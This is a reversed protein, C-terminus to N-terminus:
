RLATVDKDTSQLSQSRQRSLTDRVFGIHGRIGYFLDGFSAPVNIKSVMSEIHDLHKLLEARRSPDAAPNLADRELDLLARYWRHIRSEIRWRYIAPAMKLAPILLLAVPLVFAIIRTIM